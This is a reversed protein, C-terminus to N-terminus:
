DMENEVVVVALPSIDEVRDGIDKILIRENDYSLNFGIYLKGRINLDKLKRSILDPNNDRDTLIISLKHDKVQDLSGRRGHLSIFRADQWPKQLKGMLYQFSSLGPLVQKIEIGKNKLYQVIGFFNPDGSALLLVEKEEDLYDLVQDVKNIAIINKNISELSKAVRTFGLIYKAKDIAEVVELTLYKPNGPGVGGITLM